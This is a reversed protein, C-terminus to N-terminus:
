NSKALTFKSLAVETSYALPISASDGLAPFSVGSDVSFKPNQGTKNIIQTVFKAATKTNITATVPLTGNASSVKSETASLNVVNGDSSTLSIANLIYNWASSGENKINLDFNVKLPLDVGSLANSDISKGGAISAALAAAKTATMGSNKFSNVLESMTPLVLKPNSLSLSPKVVPVDFNKSFPLSLSKNTLSTVASLDLGVKGAISFPLAEKSSTYSKALNLISTYPLKFDFTNTKTGNAALSIGENATLSTVKSSNCSIDAALSDLKVAVNYPNTIDYNCKFSVGEMDLGTIALSKFALTPTQLQSAIGGLLGSLDLSTCSISSFLIGACLCAPLLIKVSKKM